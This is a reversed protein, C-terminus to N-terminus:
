KHRRSRVKYGSWLCWICFFGAFFIFVYTAISGMLLRGSHLELAVNWLSMPLDKLADPQSIAKTGEYYDTAFPKGAFDSSYGSIAQKGFPMGSSKPTPKHTYYDLSTGKQRNWVTLGSFSGCLWQGAADRQWVNLGMVSVNPANKVKHPKDYLSSLSYFGESTSIIWDGFAEDYRVMRLKDAWANDSKLVTCPLAAVKSKVLAVMVPPRLCWGTICLLLTLVISYRGVRDHILYSWRLTRGKSHMKPLLWYMIGTVCLVILVLALIDVIIKGTTGFLEGSHLLWVTRFAAVRGDYGDPACLSIKKFDKYPPLSVYVNSRGVVVLSDGCATIDTLREDDSPLQVSHWQGHIGFRYVGAASVAFLSGNPCKVVNRIQRYDAGCPLGTNFDEFDPGVSDALWMGGNGYVLVRDDLRVTGRLLGGNWDKFEYRSPLWRRSVNVDQVLSRHNLVVGSVCFLFMFLCVGIGLWKHHKRWTQKKM